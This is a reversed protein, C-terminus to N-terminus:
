RFLDSQQRFGIRQDETFIQMKNEHNQKKNPRDLAPHLFHTYTNYSNHLYLNYIYNSRM